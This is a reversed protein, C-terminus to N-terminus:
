RVTRTIIRPNTKKSQSSTFKMMTLSGRVRARGRSLNLGLDIDEGIGTVGLSAVLNSLGASSVNLAKSVLLTGDIVSQGDSESALLERGEHVQLAASITALGNSQGSQRVFNILDADSISSGNSNGTLFCFVKAAGSVSAKGSSAANVSRVVILGGLVSAVGNSTGAVDADFSAVVSAVGAITSQLRKFVGISGNITSSAEIEVIMGRTILTEGNVLSSSSSSGIAAKLVNLDIDTLSSGSILSAISTRIMLSGQVISSGNSTGVVGRRRSVNGGVGATGTVSSGLRTRIGLGTGSVVSTGNSTGSVSTSATSVNISSGVSSVGDSNGLVGRKRSVSSGVSSTGTSSGLVGRKRSVNSVVGSTGTSSGLVGRKRSVGGAVTSSGAVSSGLRTRIRLGPGSVVSTGSSTGAVSTVATSVNIASSVASSGNSVSNVERTVSINASISTIGVSQSALSETTSSVERLRLLVSGGRVNTTTGSATATFTPTVTGSGSLVRCVWVSGGLDNGTASDFEALQTVEGFTIGTASIAQGTLQKPTTVDTPQGWAIVLLDGPALDIASTYTVSLAAGSTIDSGTVSAYSWTGDGAKTARIMLGGATNYSGLTVNISGSETGDVSDKTAISVDVNGTDVAQSAYGGAGLIEGRGTWGSPFTITGGSASTSKQIAVCIHMDRTSHPVAPAYTPSLTATGSYVPWSWNEYLVGTESGTRVHFSGNAFIGTNGSGWSLIIGNNWGRSGTNAWGLDTAAVWKNTGARYTYWNGGSYVRVEQETTSSGVDGPVMGLIVTGDDCVAPFMSLEGQASSTSSLWSQTFTGDVAVKSLGFTVVASDTARTCWGFYANGDADKCSHLCFSEYSEAALTRPTGTELTWTTGSAVARFGVVSCAYNAVDGRSSAGAVVFFNGNTSASTGLQEIAVNFCYPADVNTSATQTPAKTWTSAVGALSVFDSEADADLPAHILAACYQTTDSGDLRVIMVRETGNGNKIIAITGGWPTGGLSSTMAPLYFPDTVSWGTIHGGSRTITARAYCFGGGYECLFHINGSSDQASAVVYLGPGTAVQAPAIDQGQQTRLYSTTQGSNSYMWCLDGTTIDKVNSGTYYAYPMFSGTILNRLINPVIKSM